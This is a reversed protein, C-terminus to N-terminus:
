ETVGIRAGCSPCYRWTPREDKDAILGCCPCEFYDHVLRNDGMYSKNQSYYIETVATETEARRNWVKIAEEDSEFFRSEIKVMADGNIMCMHFFGHVGDNYLRAEGGCFPCPKLKNSM